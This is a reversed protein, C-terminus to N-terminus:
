TQVGQFVDRWGLDLKGGLASDFGDIALEWYRKIVNISILLLPSKTMSQDRKRQQETSMKEAKSDESVLKQLQM